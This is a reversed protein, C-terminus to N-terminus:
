YVSVNVVRMPGRGAHALECAYGTRVLLGRGNMADVTGTVLWHGSALTDHHVAADPQFEASAPAALRALVATRCEIRAVAATDAVAAPPATRPAAVGLVRGGVGALVALGALAGIAGVWRRM